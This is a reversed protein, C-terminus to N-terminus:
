VQPVAGRIRENLLLLPEGEGRGHVHSTGQGEADFVRRLILVGYLLGKGHEARDAHDCNELGGAGVERRRGWLARRPCTVGAFSKEHTLFLLVGRIVDADGEGDM